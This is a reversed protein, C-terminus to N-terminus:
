FRRRNFSGKRGGGRNGGRRPNAQNVMISRGKLESNNLETIAKNAEYRDPMEVFGFGKSKGNYEDKIVKSSVVEGFAAFAEKLDEETVEYSLRGVYINM